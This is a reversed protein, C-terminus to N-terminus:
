DLVVAGELEGAAFEDFDGDYDACVAVFAGGEGRVSYVGGCLELGGEVGATEREGGLGGQEIRIWVVKGGVDDGRQTGLATRCGAKAVLKASYRRVDAVLHENGVPARRGGRPRPPIRSRKRVAEISILRTKRGLQRGTM